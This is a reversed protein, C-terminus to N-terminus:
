AEAAAAAIAQDASKRAADRLGAILKDVEAPAICSEVYRGSACAERLKRLATEECSWVRKMPKGLKAAVLVDARRGIYVSAANLVRREVAARDKEFNKRITMLDAVINDTYKM